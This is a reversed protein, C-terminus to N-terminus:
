TETAERDAYVHGQLTVVDPIPNCGVLAWCISLTLTRM